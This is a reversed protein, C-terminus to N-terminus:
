FVWLEERNYCKQMIKVKEIVKDAYIEAMPGRGNYRSVMVRYGLHKNTKLKELALRASFYPDSLLLIILDQNAKWPNTYGMVQMAFELSIMHPGYSGFKGDKGNVKVILNGIFSEQVAIAMLTYSLNDEKGVEWSVNLIEKQHETWVPCVTALSLAPLFFLLWVMKKM